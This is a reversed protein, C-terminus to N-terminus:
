LVREVERKLEDYTHTLRGTFSIRGDRDIIVTGGIGLPDYDLVTQGTPDLLWHFRETGPFAFEETRITKVEEAEVTPDTPIIVVELGKGEHELVLRGLAEV